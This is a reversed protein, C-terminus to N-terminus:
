REVERVSTGLALFEIAHEGWIFSEEQLRVGVVGTAGDRDAEAQMRSLAIERADYTAQTFNPMEANRGVTKWAQRYSQHAVHYVCVGLVFSVPRFGTQTLTALGQGSLDSTFPKGAPTRWPGGPARARVATGTAVFEILEDGWPYTRNDLRVGVVGDAGLAEAEAEMRAMAYGRGTYMAQTLPTLETSQAWQQVQVGIHYMSSGLVLGLPELGAQTVPALEEVPLGTTFLAREGPSRGGRLRALASQPLIAEPQTTM